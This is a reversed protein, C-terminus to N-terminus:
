KIKLFGRLRIGNIINNLLEHSLKNADPEFLINIKHKLRKEFKTLDIKSENSQIFLDVDSEKNYEGKAFSGFLFISKPILKNELYDLLGCEIISKLIEHKKYFRYLESSENAIFSPFTGSKNKVILGKKLLKNIHYNVATKSIKLQKSIGRIHFEGAPNEFFVKLINDQGM